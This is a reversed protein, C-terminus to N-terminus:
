PLPPGRRKALASATEALLIGGLVLGLSVLHYPAFPESLIVVALAAGFVPVLNVFLGARGPGVLEVARIFFIQALFSPFIAVLLLVVWGTPTPLQVLGAVIEYGLLPLASLLAACCLGAFLGTGSLRPRNRLALTYGAYFVCALLIMLDGINFRFAALTALHGRTGVVAVGVLTALVGVVQFSGIRAGHLLYAGVLVIVPVSGQFIAMNVATTHHAAVYFLANFGTFGFTGMVLITRWNARMAPLEPALRRGFGLGLVALVITWRLATLLMPSIQGVAIRGVVAHGGWFLMTLTLLLYAEAARRREDRNAAAM